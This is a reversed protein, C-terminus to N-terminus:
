EGLPLWALEGLALTESIRLGAGWSGPSAKGGQSDGRARGLPWDKRRAPGEM